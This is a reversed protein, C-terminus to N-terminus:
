SKRAELIVKLKEIFEKRETIGTRRASARMHDWRADRMSLPTQELHEAEKEMTTIEEETDRIDQEIESTPIHANDAIIKNKLEEIM